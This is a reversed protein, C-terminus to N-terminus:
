ATRWVRIYKEGTEDDILVRTTFDSGEVRHKHRTIAVSLASRQRYPVRLSDDGAVMGGLRIGNERPRQGLPIPIGKEFRLDSLDNM